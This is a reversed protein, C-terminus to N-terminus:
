SVTVVVDAAQTLAQNSVWVSFEGVAQPPGAPTVTSAFKTFAGIQNTQSADDSYVVRTIDGESALRAILHYRSGDYMGITGAGNTAPITLESDEPTQDASTGFYVDDTVPTTGSSVLSDVYGKTAFQADATPVLGEVAGTFVAGSLAALGLLFVASTTGDVETYALRQPNATSYTFANVASQVAAPLDAVGIAGSALAYAALEVDRTFAAPVQSDAIQGTLEAFSSAGGGGGPTAVAQTIYMLTAGYFDEGANTSTILPIDGATRGILADRRAFDPTGDGVNTAGWDVMLMGTGDDPTTDETDATLARWDAANIWTWLAAPGDDVGDSFAGGNWILWTANAPVPTTGLAKWQNATTIDIDGTWLDNFALAAGSSALATEAGSQAAEARGQALEAATQATGAGTEATGANTEATEAGTEATEAAAQATQAGTEATEAAAQAAEAAAQAALAALEATEEVPEVPTSWTPTLTGTDVLPNVIAQSEYLNQGTAPATPLISWGTPPTLIGTEVVYTGGAPMAPATTAPRFISITFRAQAGVRGRPGTIVGTFDEWATGANNRRQVVDGDDWVLQILFNLNANYSALWSANATTYTDRLAEAAARDATSTDGFINQEPGLGPNGPIKIYAKHINAPQAAVRNTLTRVSTLARDAYFYTYRSDYHIGELYERAAEYDAYVGRGGRISTPTLWAHRDPMLNLRSLDDVLVWHYESGTLDPNTESIYTHGFGDAAEEFLFVWEGVTSPAKISETTATLKQIVGTSSNHFIYIIGVTPLRDGEEFYIRAAEAQDVYSGNRVNNSNAGPNRAMWAYGAPLLNSVNGIYDSYAGGSRHRWRNELSSFYYHGNLNMGTPDAALVGRYAGDDADTYEGEDDFSPTLDPFAGLYNTAAYDAQDYSAPIGSHGM